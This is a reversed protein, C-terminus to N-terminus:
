LDMQRLVGSSVRSFEVSTFKRMGGRNGGYWRFKRRNGDHRASGHECVLMVTQPVPVALVGASNGDVADGTVRAHVM